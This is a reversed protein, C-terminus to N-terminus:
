LSIFRIICCITRKRFKSDNSLTESIFLRSKFILNLFRSEFQFYIKLLFNPIFLPSYLSLCITGQNKLPNLLIRNKKLKTDRNDCAPIKRM